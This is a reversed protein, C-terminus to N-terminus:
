KKAGLIEEKKYKWRKHSWLYFEPAKRIQEEVLQIYKDTIEFDETEKSNESIVRFTIEYYGRKVQRSDMFVTALNFRKALKEPGTIVPAEQNMFTLWHKLDGWEPRQDGVLYVMFNEKNRQADMIARLTGKMPTPYGGLRGRLYIFLNDFMKNSLPKYVGLLKFDLVHDVFSAWEWNGYHSGAVVVSKNKRALEEAIEPNLLKYRRDIEKTTMQFMHIVEFISDCLHLYFRSAIKRIEKENKEPFSRRLNEYVVKRRYGIIKYLLFYITWSFLFLVRLPILSILWLPFM